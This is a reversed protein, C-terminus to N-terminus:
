VPIQVINSYYCGTESVTTQYTEICCIIRTNSSAINSWESAPVSVRTVPNSTNNFVYDSAYILNYSMDYVVLRFKNNKYTVSGGQRNWSFIPSNSSVDPVELSASVGFESLIDGIYLKVSTARGADNNIVDILNELTYCNNNTVLNWVSQHTLAIHDYSENRSDSLDLLVAAVVLENEIGLKCVTQDSSSSGYTCNEIHNYRVIDDTDQYIVDGVNPIGLSSANSEIQSAIALYTAWGEGWTLYMAVPKNGTEDAMNKNSWHSGGPSRSIDFEHQVYHAYEHQIIDWDYADGNLIFIKSQDTTENYKYKSTNEINQPFFVSIQPLENGSLSKVYEGTMDMAQHISFAKGVSTNQSIILNQTVTVGLQTTLVGNTSTVSNVDNTTYNIVESYGGSAYVTIKINAGGVPLLTGAPYEYEYFGREDTQTFVTSLVMGSPPGYVSTTSDHFIKVSVNKAPHTNGSSDTWYIEGQVTLTSPDFPNYSRTKSEIYGQSVAVESDLQMLELYDYSVSLDNEDCYMTYYQYLSENGNSSVFVGNSDSILWLAFEKEALIDDNEDISEMYVTVSGIGQQLSSFSITFSPQEMDTVIIESESQWNVNDIDFTIRYASADYASVINYTRIINEGIDYRVVPNVVDSEAFLPKSATSCVISSDYEDITTQEMLEESAYVFMPSIATFGLAIALVVSIVLRTKM